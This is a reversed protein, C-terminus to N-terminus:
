LNFADHLSVVKFDNLKALMERLLEALALPTSALEIRAQTARVAQLISM